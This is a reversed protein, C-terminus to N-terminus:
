PCNKAKRWGAAVAEEETCFWREGKSEDIATKDYSGCGPLHYIKETSINGKILCPASQPSPESSPSTMAPAPAPTTVVPSSVACADDAWLGRKEERATLEAKKFEDQYKYPLEYTYEYAYGYQIMRLNVNTGDELFVYALSRGYKDFKGQTVDGEITVSKGELVLKAFESAEKGFCEVPERPDAIEPTDIGILRFRTIVGDIDIDVTDGDVVRVVKYLDSGTEESQQEYTVTVGTGVENEASAPVASSPHAPEPESITASRNNCGAGIFFLAVSVVVLLKKM